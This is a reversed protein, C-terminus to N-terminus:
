TIHIKFICGCLYLYFICVFMFIFNKKLFLYYYTPITYIPDLIGIDWYLPSFTPM